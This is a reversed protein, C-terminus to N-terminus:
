SVREFYGGGLVFRATEGAALVFTFVRHPEKGVSLNYRFYELSIGCLLRNRM